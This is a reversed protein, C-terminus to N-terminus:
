FLCFAQGGKVGGEIGGGIDEKGNGGDRKGWGIEGMGDGKGM